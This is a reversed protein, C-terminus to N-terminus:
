RYIGTMNKNDNLISDKNNELNNYTKVPITKSSHSSMTRIHKFTYRRAALGSSNRM